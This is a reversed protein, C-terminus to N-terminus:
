KGENQQKRYKGHPTAVRDFAQIIKLEAQLLPNEDEQLLYM